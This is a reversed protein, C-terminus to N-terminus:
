HKKLLNSDELQKIFCSPCLSHAFSADTRKSIYTEIENWYGKDDRIQKCHSCIPLLGNLTKVEALATQLEGILKEQELDRQRREVAYRITRALILGTLENKPLYDQAGANIARSAVSQDALGTLVVIPVDPAMGRMREFTEFGNSEPLQLDLLVADFKSKALAEAAGKLDLAGTLIVPSQEPEGLLGRILLADHKSDEVLLVKLQAPHSM